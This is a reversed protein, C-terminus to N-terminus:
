DPDEEEPGSQEATFATMVCLGVFLLEPCEASSACEILVPGSARVHGSLRLANHPRDSRTGEQKICRHLVIVMAVDLRHLDM